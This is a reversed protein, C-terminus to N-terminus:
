RGTVDEWTERIARGAKDWPMDHHRSEWDRRLEPEVQAWSRGQYRPDSRMEYGYRYSPEYEEWRGGSTGYRAQWASRYTPMVAAWDRTGAARAGTGAADRVQVDGTTEVRAEERRVTGSVHETEVVPRTGLSVEETVVTQKEVKVQEERVPVRIEEGERFDGTAPRGQVPHREVVVEEHTVPVDISKQETVVDKRLAAEGAKVTEKEARLREERLQVTREADTLQGTSATAPATAPATTAMTERGVAQVNEGRTEAGSQELVARADGYRREDTHVTVLYGGEKFREEYHRAEDEPVGAHELAGVIGGTVAGTVGGTVAGALGAALPGVAVIPGIGPILMAAAGLLLGFIGGTAVGEGATVHHGEDAAVETKGDTGRGVISIDNKTFGRQLLLDYARDAASRDRFYGVGTRDMITDKRDATTDAL